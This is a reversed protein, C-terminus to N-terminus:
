HTVDFVQRGTLLSADKLFAGYDSDRRIDQLDKRLAQRVVVLRNQPFVVLYQGDSGTHYFATLRDPADDATTLYGSFGLAKRWGALDNSGQVGYLRKVLADYETKPMPKDLYPQIKAIQTTPVGAARWKEMTETRMMRQPETELFWILGLAPADPINIGGSESNHVQSRLSDRVFTESLLRKGKWVGGDLMLVGFKAMDHTRLCLGGAGEVNGKPDKSWEWESIGMPKLFEDRVFTDTPKGSAKAVINALLYIAPNSYTWNEGPAATMPFNLGYSVLDVFAKRMEAPYQEEPIDGAGGIGSTHTLLHRLTISARKEDTKWQPYFDSAPQDLSKLKGMDLLRGIAMAVVPKTVSMICIPEQPAGFHEEALVKGDHWVYLAESYNDRSKRRLAEFAPAKLGRKEVEAASLVVDPRLRFRPDQYETRFWGQRLMEDLKAREAFSLRAREKRYDTHSKDFAIRDHLRRFSECRLLCMMCRDAATGAGSRLLVNTVQVARNWKSGQWLAILENADVPKPAPKNTLTKQM